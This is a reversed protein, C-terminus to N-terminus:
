RIKGSFPDKKRKELERLTSNVEELKLPSDLIYAKAKKFHMISLEWNQKHLYYRGLHFHALGLNNVQGYVVGLQYDADPFMPALEELRLLHELAENKKGLDQLVLALRYHAISASPDLTLASELTKQAEALKGVKHYAGGLTSLVFPSSPMLRAAEQLQNVGEAWMGQRLYFRGLGFVAAKDGNKIGVKLREEAKAPDTHDAILAAQMLQFDGTAPATRKSSTAKEKKAMDALYQVREGLAPHTSLYSPIRSAGTWKQQDMKHMVSAMESPDYGAACFYRFGLQDAEMEFARSYKLAASQGAAASGAIIAGPGAGGGGAAGLLVGALLGALSAVSIVKAEDAQRQIHRAQIHAAEHSLISALEGESSMLEIMGRFIFIYGGPIAFANPVAEDIIFFQYQYTTVGVERAVRNGVSRVYTLVEGDEVMPMARRIMELTKRGIEKEESLTLAHSRGPPMVFVSTFVFVILAACVARIRRGSFLFLVM